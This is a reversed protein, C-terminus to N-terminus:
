DGCVRRLSTEGCTRGTTQNSYLRTKPDYTWRAGTQDTGTMRGNYAVEARWTRGTDINQGLIYGGTCASINYKVRERAAEDYVTKPFKGAQSVGVACGLDTDRRPDGSSLALRDPSAWDPQPSLKPSATALSPTLALLTAAALISRQM